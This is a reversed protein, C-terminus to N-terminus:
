SPAHRPVLARTAAHRATSWWAPRMDQCVRVLSSAHACLLCRRPVLVRSPTHRPVFVLSAHRPVFLSAVHRPVLCQCSCWAPQLVSTKACGGPQCCIKARVLLSCPMDQCSCWAPSPGGIVLSALMEQCSCWTGQGSCWGLWHTKARVGASWCTTVLSAGPTKPRAAPRPCLVMSALMDQCCTKARVQHAPKACVDPLGTWARGSDQDAHRPM